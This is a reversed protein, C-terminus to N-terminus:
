TRKKKKKKCRKFSVRNNHTQISLFPFKLGSRLPQFALQRLLTSTLFTTWLNINVLFFSKGLRKSILHKAPGPPHNGKRHGNGAVSAEVGGNDSRGPSCVRGDVGCSQRTQLGARRYHEALTSGGYKDGPQKKHSGSFTLQGVCEAHDVNAAVSGDRGQEEVDAKSKFFM